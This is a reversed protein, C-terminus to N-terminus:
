VTTLETAQSTEDGQSPGYLPKCITGDGTGDDRRKKSRGGGQTRLQENLQTKTKPRNTILQIL